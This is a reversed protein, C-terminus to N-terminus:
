RLQALVQDPDVGKQEALAYFARKPDGGSARIADMAQKMQPNTQMLQAIIAGPNGASRVMQMLQKIQPSVMPSGLQQLIQPIPM